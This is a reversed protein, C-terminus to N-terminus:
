PAPPAQSYLREVALPITMRFVGLSARLETSEWYIADLAASLAQANLAGVTSLTQSIRRLYVEIAGSEEASLVPCFDVYLGKVKAVMYQLAQGAEQSSIEQPRTDPLCFARIEGLQRSIRLYGATQSDAIDHIQFTTTM